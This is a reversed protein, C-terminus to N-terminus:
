DFPRRRHHYGSSLPPRGSDRPSEKRNRQSRGVSYRGYLEGEFIFRPASSYDEPFPKRLTFFRPRSNTMWPSYESPLLSGDPFDSGGTPRLGRRKAMDLYRATDEADHKPYYAEIGGFDLDLVREVLADDWVLKPHALVPVGGAGRILSVAEEPTIRFHPVFAPRGRDLLKEFADRVTEVLGKKVLARAVHARGIFKSTGVAKLVDSETIDYGLSRLKEVIVSFREWRSESLEMVKDTLAQDYIDIDYGLVHIDHGEMDSSFEIGPIIGVSKSPYLGEEYLHKVGDVTDHDTVAIYSLGAAKAAALLEEPTLSGDSFTTHTHLDSAM